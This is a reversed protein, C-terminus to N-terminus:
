KDGKNKKTKKKKEKEEKEEKVETETNDVDDKVAVVEAESIGEEIANQLKTVTNKIMITSIIDLIGYVVIVIGVVRTIYVAGQFPNFILLVGCVMTLISLAMTSKWLDNKHSKLELSYQFKTASSIIIIFGIILPIISGIGKPNTIVVIGLIISVLGYITDLENKTPSNMDKVFKLIAIVGIAILIAGIIYAISVITAESQYILLFGLVVLGISSLLSSKFFKSMFNNM